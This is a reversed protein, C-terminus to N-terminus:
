FDQQSISTHNSSGQQKITSQMTGFMGSQSTQAFNHTGQQVVHSTNTNGVGHQQQSSINFMGTQQLITNNSHLNDMQYQKQLGLNHAGEQEIRAINQSLDATSYQETLSHNHSGIQEVSAYGIDNRSQIIATVNKIGVQNISSSRIIPQKNKSIYSALSLHYKPLSKKGLDMNESFSHNVSITRSPSSGTPHKQTTNDPTLIKSKSSIKIKDKIFHNPSTAPATNRDRDPLIISFEPSDHVLPMVTIQFNNIQKLPIVDLNSFLSTGSDAQPLELEKEVSTDMDPSSTGSERIELSHIESYRYGIIAFLLAIMALGTWILYTRSTFGNHPM